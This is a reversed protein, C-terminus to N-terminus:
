AVIKTAPKTLDDVSPAPLQHERPQRVSTGLIYEIADRVNKAANEAEGLGSVITAVIMLAGVIKSWSPSPSLAEQKAENLYGEIKEREEPTISPLQGVSTLAAEILNTIRDTNINSPKFLDSDQLHRGVTIEGFISVSARLSGLQLIVKQLSVPEDGFIGKSKVRRSIYPLYLAVQNVASLTATMPKRAEAMRLRLAVLSLQETLKGDIELRDFDKALFGDFRQAYRRLSAFDANFTKMAQLGAAAGPLTLARHFGFTLLQEENAAIEILFTEIEEIREGFQRVEYWHM